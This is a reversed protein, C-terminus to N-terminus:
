KQFQELWWKGTDSLDEKTYGSTKKCSSKLLSAAEDKNCLSWSMMSIGNDNCFTMWAAASDKDLRGAGSAECISFESVFLPLGKDLATQAKKRLDEKHTAAYFHLAYMINKQGKLPSSAVVDVDQSWTPTGVIIVAKKDIKRITKIVEKAYPKIDREWTVDGNPENCIEYIVNKNGKYEKAMEKFFSKAEKKYQNPNGDGLIHWDIIVYLGEKTAYEVGQKVKKHMEKTYGAGPDSYMALRVANIGFLSKLSAFSERSVYEPFWAIGHTSVGRLVFPEGKSDVLGTGKVSLRGHSKVPNAEGTNTAAKGKSKDKSKGDAAAKATDGASAPAKGDATETGAGQAKGGQGKGINYQVNDAVVVTQEPTFTEKTQLIFGYNVTQGAGIVQNYEMPVAQFSTGKLTYEANWGQNLKSGEPVMLKTSWSQIEKDTDNSVTVDFQSFIMGDQEWTSACAYSVRVASGEPQEAADASAEGPEEGVPVGEAKETGGADDATQTQERYVVGDELTEIEKDGSRRGLFFAVGAVLCLVLLLGAAILLKKKM